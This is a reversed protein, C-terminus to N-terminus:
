DGSQLLAWAPADFGVTVQRGWEVVPRKIVSVHERMLAKASTADKVFAKREADLQRWSTGKRNLLKEWGLEDIWCELHSEPVGHKKFDHFEHAVGHEALWARAKKVTDCNPIGYLTVTM